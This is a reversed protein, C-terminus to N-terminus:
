AGQRWDSCCCFLMKSICRVKHTVSNFVITKGSECVTAFVHPYAPNMALGYLDAQQGFILIEPDKDIEWINCDKTGAFCILCVSLTFQRM